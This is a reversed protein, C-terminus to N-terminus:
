GIRERWWNVTDVLGARLTYKPKWGISQLRKIDAYYSDANAWETKFIQSDTPDTIDQLMDLVHKVKVPRGSGVNVPGTLDSDAIEWIARAADRVHIFDRVQHGESTTVDDGTLLARIVAPFLREEKEGPGYVQFLRPWIIRMDRGYERRLKQFAWVKTAGYISAPALLSREALPRKQSMYEACTGVGVFKQCGLRMVQGALDLTKDVWRYNEHSTMYGPSMGWALHITIDPKCPIRWDRGTVYVEHEDPILDVLQTGIFGTAGSVLINM